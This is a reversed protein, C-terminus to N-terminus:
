VIVCVVYRFLCYKFIGIEQYYLLQIVEIARHVSVVRVVWHCLNSFPQAWSGIVGSPKSVARIYSLIVDVSSRSSTLINNFIGYILDFTVITCVAFKTFTLTILAAYVLTWSCQPGFWKGLRYHEISSYHIRHWSRDHCRVTHRETVYTVYISVPISIM